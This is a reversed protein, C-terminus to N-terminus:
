GPCYRFFYQYKRGPKATFDDWVFSQIPHDTSKVSLVVGEM